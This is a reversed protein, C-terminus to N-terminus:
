PLFRRSRRADRSPYTGPRRTPPLCRLRSRASALGARTTCGAWRPCGAKSTGGTVHPGAAADVRGESRRWYRARDMSRTRRPRHGAHNSRALAALRACPPPAHSPLDRAGRSRPGRSRRGGDHAGRRVRFAGRREPLLDPVSRFFPETMWVSSEGRLAVSSELSLHDLM